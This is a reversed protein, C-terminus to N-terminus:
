ESPHPTSDGSTGPTALIQLRARLGLLRQLLDKSPTSGLWVEHCVGTAGSVDAGLDTQGSVRALRSMYNLTAEVLGCDLRDSRTAKLSEDLYTKGLSWFARSRNPVKISGLSQEVCAKTEALSQGEGMCCNKLGAIARDVAAIAGAGSRGRRSLSERQDALETVELDVWGCLSRVALPRAIKGTVEFEDLIVRWGEVPSQAPRALVEVKARESSGSDSAWMPEIGSLGDPAIGVLERPSGALVQIRHSGIAMGASRLDGDCTCAVRFPKGAVVAKPFHFGSVENLVMPYPTPVRTSFSGLSPLILRPDLKFVARGIEKGNPETLRFRVESVDKPVTLIWYGQSIQFRRNGVDLRYGKFSSASGKHVVVAGSVADGSRLDWPVYVTIRGGDVSFSASRLTGVAPQGSASLGGAGLLLLVGTTIISRISRTLRRM